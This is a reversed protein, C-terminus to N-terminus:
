LCVPLGTRGKLHKSTMWKLFVIACGTVQKNDRTNINNPIYSVFQKKKERSFSVSVSQWSDVIHQSYTDCRIWSGIPRLAPHSQDTHAPPHCPPLNPGPPLHSGISPKSGGARHSTPPPLWRCSPIIPASWRWGSWQGPRTRTRPCLRERVFSMFNILPM